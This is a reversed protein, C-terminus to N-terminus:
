SDCEAGALSPVNATCRPAVLDLLYSCADNSAETLLRGEEETEGAAAPGDEGEFYQGSGDTESECGTDNLALPPGSRSLQM